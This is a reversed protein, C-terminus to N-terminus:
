KVAVLVGDSFASDHLELSALKQDEAIDYVVVANKISNGPNIEKFFVDMGEKNAAISASSSASVKAGSALKGAQADASFSQPEDGVNKVTMTVLCFKGQAKEELFSSGVKKAGCKVTQVTFEFKGDRVKAGLGAKSPAPAKSSEETKETENPKAEITSDVAVTPSATTGSSSASGVSALAGLALVTLVYGQKLNMIINGRKALSFECAGIDLRNVMLQAVKAAPSPLGLIQGPMSQHGTVRVTM